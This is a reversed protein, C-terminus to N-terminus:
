GTSNIVPRMTQGSELWGAQKYDLSGNTRNGVLSGWVWCQSLCPHGNPSPSHEFLFGALWWIQRAHYTLHCIHNITWAVNLGNQPFVQHQGPTLQWQPLLNCNLPSETALSSCNVFEYCTDTVACQVTSGWVIAPTRITGKELWFMKPKSLEFLGPTSLWESTWVGPYVWFKNLLFIICQGCDHLSWLKVKGMAIWTNASRRPNEQYQLPNMSLDPWSHPAIQSVSSLPGTKPFIFFM